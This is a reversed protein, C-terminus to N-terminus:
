LLEILEEKNNLVVDENYDRQNSDKKLLYVMTINDDIIYFTTSTNDTMYFVPKKSEMQAKILDNISKVNIVHMKDTDPLNKTCVMVANYIRLIRKLEDNYQEEKTRNKKRFLLIISILLIVSLFVALILYDKIKYFLLIGDLGLSLVFLIITIIITKNNKM